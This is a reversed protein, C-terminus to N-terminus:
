PTALIKSSLLSHAGWGGFFTFGGLFLLPDLVGFFLLVVFVGFFFYFVGFFFYGCGWFFFYVGWFFLLCGWFFLLAALKSIQLRRRQSLAPRLGASECHDATM